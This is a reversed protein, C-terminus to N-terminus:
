EPPGVFNVAVDPVLLERTDRSVGVSLTEGRGSPAVGRLSHTLGTRRRQRSTAAQAAMPPRSAAM